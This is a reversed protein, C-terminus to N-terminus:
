KSFCINLVYLKNMNQFVILFTYIDLKVKVKRALAILAQEFQGSCWAGAICGFAPCHAGIRGGAGELIWYFSIILTIIRLIPPNHYYLLLLIM